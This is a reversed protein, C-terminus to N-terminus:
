CPFLSSIAVSLNAKPDENGYFSGTNWNTAGADAAAKMRILRFPARDARAPPPISSSSSSVSSAFAQADSPVPAGFTWTLMMLGHGSRTYRVPAHAPDADYVPGM